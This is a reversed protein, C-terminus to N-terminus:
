PSTFVPDTTSLLKTRLVASPQQSALLTRLRETAAAVDDAAGSHHGEVTFLAETTDPGTASERSQRWCWRRASVLGTDDVFVVEGPLPHVVESSGLDRWRETGDAFRVTTAGTVGAQDFVAVPLAAGISVLNGIDVLTSISPIEGQKILRRLLAEAACRYQTPKVGFASFARRWAVLSEIESLPRDGLQARVRRQKELYQEVLDPSPDRNDLGQAHIVGGVISPFRNLVAPHYGFVVRSM